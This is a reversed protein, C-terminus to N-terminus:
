KEGRSGEGRKSKLEAELQILQRVFGPNPDISPRAEKVIQYADRYPKGLSYMVYAICAAASRSVGANCHVLIARGSDRRGTNIFDFISDFHSKIDASDVDM